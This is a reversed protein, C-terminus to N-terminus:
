PREDARRRRRGARAQGRRRHDHRRAQVHLPRRGAARHGGLEDDPGHRAGNREVAGERAALEPPLGRQDGLARGQLANQQATTLKRGRMKARDVGIVRVEHRGPETIDAPYSFGGQPGTLAPLTFGDVRLRAGSSRPSASSSRASRSSGTRRTRTGRAPRRARAAGQHAGPRRGDRGVSQQQAAARQPAALSAPTFEATRRRSPPRREARQPVAAPQEAAPVGDQRRRARLGDARAPRRREVVDALRRDHDRRVGQRRGLLDVPGAAIQRGTQFKWLMKGTKLDFARLNGDGGGAFGIGSATISM